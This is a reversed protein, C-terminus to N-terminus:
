LLLEGLTKRAAQLQQVRGPSKFTVGSAVYAGPEFEENAADALVQEVRFHLKSNQPASVMARAIEEVTGKIYYVSRQDIISITAKGNARMNRTTGSDNYTALRLNRRDKAIVEFYSLMALHPWGGDDVTALLIVKEASKELDDGLLRWYLDDPLKNGLFKSMESGENLDAAAEL